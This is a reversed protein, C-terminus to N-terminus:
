YSYTMEQLTHLGAFAVIFWQETQFIGRFFSLLEQDIKKEDILKEIIEFEDFTVILKYNERVRDVQKLFRRFPENPYFDFEQKQPPTLRNPFQEDFTYDIERALLYLFQSTNEINGLFQLNFDVIITQEQDLYYKLNQLISSKGMRRHGYLIVSSCQGQKNWLSKLTRMIDERGFFLEGTVPNGAIYPNIIETNIEGRGVRGSEETVLDNWQKIVRKLLYKEPTNIQNEIKQDLQKLQDPIRLLIAQKNSWVISNLYNTVDTKILEFEQLYQILKTRIATSLSFEQLSLTCHTFDSLESYNLYDAIIQFTKKIEMGGIYNDLDYYISQYNLLNFTELNIIKEDLLVYLLEAFRTIPTVPRDRFYKTLQYLIREIKQSTDDSTTDIWQHSLEALVLNKIAPIKEWGETTFPAFIYYNSTEYNLIRYLCYLPSDQHHIYSWLIRQGIWRQFPNSLLNFLQYIGKEKNRQLQNNILNKTFPLPLLILEDWSTSHKIFPIFTFWSLLFHFFYFYFRLGWFIIILTTEIGYALSQYQITVAIGVAAAISSMVVACRAINLAINYSISGALGVMISFIIVSLREDASSLVKTIITFLISGGVGSSLGCFIGVIGGLTWGVLLIIPVSIALGVIGGFFMLIVPNFQLYNIDKNSVALLIGVTLNAGIIGTIGTTVGGITGRPISVTIGLGLGFTLCLSLALICSIIIGQFWGWWNIFIQQYYSITFLIPLGFLFSGLLGAGWFMLYLNRYTTYQFIKWFVKQPNSAQYLKSDSQYLYYKLYSPRFYVWYLLLFYHKINLLNLCHPINCNPKPFIPM